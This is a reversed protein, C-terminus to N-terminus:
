NNDAEACSESCYKQHRDEPQFDGGCWGCERVEDKWAEPCGTEHCKVGNIYLVECSDCGNSM